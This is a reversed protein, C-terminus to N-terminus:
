RVLRGVVMEVAVGGWDVVLLMVMDGGVVQGVVRGWMQGGRDRWDPWIVM